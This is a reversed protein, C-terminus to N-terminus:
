ILVEAAEAAFNCSFSPMGFLNYKDAAAMEAETLNWSWLDFDQALHAPNSSKTVAPVGHQVLWKLAVQITSKGHSNALTSTFKGKLIESNAGQKWPTNGLPSYAQLVVGKENAYSQFGSPDPGMGIHYGIQNVMPYVTANGDLCAFCSPCYNSVGIARAKGARYFEEMAVWQDRIEGCIFRCTRLYMAERPPFHIIVLDVYSLNLKQLDDELAKKTDIYCRDTSVAPDLGCGPVKTEIFLSSRAVGAGRIARGVGVQNHYDFATDVMTFGVKIAASIAAEAQTDNYQWTGAALLPMEVGNRLRVAPAVSVGGGMALTSLVLSTGLRAAMAAIM